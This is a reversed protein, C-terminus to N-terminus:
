PAIRDVLWRNGILVLVFAFPEPGGRAREATGVVEASPPGGNAPLPYATLGTANAPREHRGRALTRPPSEVLGRGFEPTTTALLEASITRNSRGVEYAFFARLFRRAKGEIRQREADLRPDVRQDPGLDEQAAVRGARWIVGPGAVTAPTSRGWERPPGTGPAPTQRPGDDAGMYSWFVLFAAVALLVCVCFVFLASSRRRSM